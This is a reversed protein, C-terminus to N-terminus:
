AGVRDGNRVVLLRTKAIFICLVRCKKSSFEFKRQAEKVSMGMGTSGLVWEGPTGSSGRSM